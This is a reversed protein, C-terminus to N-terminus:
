APGIFLKPHKKIWSRVVPDTQLSPLIDRVDLLYRYAFEAPFRAVYPMASQQNARSWVALAAGTAYLVSPSSPIPAHEPDVLAAEISPRERAVRLYPVFEAAASEGITGAIIERETAASLSFSLHASVTSWARFSPFAGDDPPAEVFALEPRWRLFGIVEPRIGTTLAWVGWADLDPEVNLTTVRNRFAATLTHFIGKDKARNGTLTVMWGPAFTAQAQRYVVQHAAVQVERPASTVDDLLVVGRGEQPFPSAWSTRGGSVVPMGRLDIPECSPLDLTFLEVGESRAVEAVLASKGVGPPGLLLFTPLSAANLAQRLVDITQPINLTDGETGEYFHREVFQFHPWDEEDM